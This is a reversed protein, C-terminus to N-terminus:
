RGRTHLFDSQATFVKQVLRLNGSSQPGLRKLGGIDIDGMSDRGPIFTGLPQSTNAQVNQGIRTRSFGVRTTSLTKVSLVRRYEGTFFQNRSIFNRPSQPYDTPLSQDTDDM